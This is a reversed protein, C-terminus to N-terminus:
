NRQIKFQAWLLISGTQKARKFLRNRKLIEIKIEGTVWPKDKSTFRVTGSPSTNMALLELCPVESTGPEIWEHDTQHLIDLACALHTV